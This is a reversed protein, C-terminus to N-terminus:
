FYIKRLPDTITPNLDCHISKDVKLNRLQHSHSFVQVNYIPRTASADRVVNLLEAELIIRPLEVWKIQVPLTRGVPM